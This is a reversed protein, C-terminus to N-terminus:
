YMCYISGTFDTITIYRSTRLRGTYKPLYNMPFFTLLPLSHIGKMVPKSYLFDTVISKEQQKTAGNFVKTYLLNKQTTYPSTESKRWSHLTQFYISLLWAQVSEYSSSFSPTLGPYARFDMHCPAWMPNSKWSQFLFSCCTLHTDTPWTNKFLVTMNCRVLM